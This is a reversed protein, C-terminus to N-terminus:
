LCLDSKIDNVLSIGWTILSRSESLKRFLEFDDKVVSLEPYFGDNNKIYKDDMFEIFSEADTNKVIGLFTWGPKEVEEKDFEFHFLRQKESYCLFLLNEYTRM